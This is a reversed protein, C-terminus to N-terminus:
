GRATYCSFNESAAPKVLLRLSEVFTNGMQLRTKGCRRLIHRADDPLGSLEAVRSVRENAIQFRESITLQLIDPITHQSKALTDGSNFIM